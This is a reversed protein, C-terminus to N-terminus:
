KVHIYGPIWQQYHEKSKIVLEQFSQALLVSAVIKFRRYGLNKISFILKYYYQHLVLSFIEKMGLFHIPIFGPSSTALTFICMSAFRMSDAM